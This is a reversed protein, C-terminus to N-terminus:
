PVIDRRLGLVERHATDVLGEGAKFRALGAVADHQVRIESQIDLNKMIKRDRFYVLAVDGVFDTDLRRDATRDMCEELVQEAVTM